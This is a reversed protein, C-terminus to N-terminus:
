PRGEEPAAHRVAAISAWVVFAMGLIQLPDPMEHLLLLGLSAAIAPELSMLISFCRVGLRRLAALEMLCTGLPALVALGASGAMVWLPPLHDAQALGFPALLVAATLISLTMGDTGDFVAGVRRMLVIYIALALASTAALFLGTPDSHWGSGAVADSPWLLLLVGVGALLSMAVPQWGRAGTIAVGLPGLFSITAVMGLPLRSVAAFYSVSLLALTAGLMLAALIARRPLGRLRPRTVLLLVLAAVTMRIATVAPAGIEAVLPRSVAAALQIATMAFVALGVARVLGLPVPVARLAVTM